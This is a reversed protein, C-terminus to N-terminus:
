LILGRRDSCRGPSLTGSPKVHYGNFPCMTGIQRQWGRPLYPVLGWFPWGDRGYVFSQGCVADANWVSAYVESVPATAHTDYEFWVYREAEIKNPGRFWEVWILDPNHWNSGRDFTCPVEVANPVPTCEGGDRCYLPVVPVNPNSLRLSELNALTTPSSNHHFFLIVLEHM